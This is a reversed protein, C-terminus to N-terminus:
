NSGRYMRNASVYSVIMFIFLVATKILIWVNGDSGNIYGILSVFFMGFVVPFATLLSVGKRGIPDQVGWVLLLTWGFMLSGGVGMILRTQLDPDFDSGGILLGFVSPFFLAVTWLADAGIGLWYPCKILFLKKESM